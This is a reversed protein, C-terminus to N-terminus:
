DARGHVGAIGNMTEWGAAEAVRYIADIRERLAPDDRNSDLPTRVAVFPKERGEERMRQRLHPSKEVQAALKPIAKLILDFPVRAGQLHLEGNPDIYFEVWFEALIRGVLGDVDWDGHVVALQTRSLAIGYTRGILACSCDRYNWPVIDASSLRKPCSPANKRLAAWQESPFTVSDLTDYEEIQSASLEVVTHPVSVERTQRDVPPGDAFLSAAPMAVFARFLLPGSSLFLRTCLFASTPKM